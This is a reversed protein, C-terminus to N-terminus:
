KKRYVVKVNEKYKRISDIVEKSDKTNIFLCFPFKSFIVTSKKGVIVLDVQDWKFGCIYGKDSYDVIGDRSFSLKGKRGERYYNYQIVFSLFLVLFSMILILSVLTFILFIINYKEGVSVYYSIYFLVFALVLKYFENFYSFLSGKDNYMIKKKSAVINKLEIFEYIDNYKIEYKM